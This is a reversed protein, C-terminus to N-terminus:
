VRWEHARQPLGTLSHVAQILSMLAFCLGFLALLFLNLSTDLRWSGWYISVIGDNTGLTTAAVVAAAFILLFWIVTRMSDPGGGDGLRGLGPRRALPWSPAGASARPCHLM